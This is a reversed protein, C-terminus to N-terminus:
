IDRNGDTRQPPTESYFIREFKVKRIELIKDEVRNGPKMPGTENTSGTSRDGKAGKGNRSRRISDTKHQRRCSGVATCSPKGPYSASGGWIGDLKVETRNM